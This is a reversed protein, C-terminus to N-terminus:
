VTTARCTLSCQSPKSSSMGAANRPSRDFCCSRFAPTRAPTALTLITRTRATGCKAVVEQIEARIKALTTEDLGTRDHALVVKLRSMAASGAAGSAGRRSKSRAVANDYLINSLFDMLGMRPAPSRAAVARGGAPHPVSGGLVLASAAVARLLMLGLRM